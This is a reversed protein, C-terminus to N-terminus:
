PRKAPSVAESFRPAHMRLGEMGPLRRRLDADRILTRAVRVARDPARGAFRSAQPRSRRPFPGLQEHTYAELLGLRVFAGRAAALAPRRAASALDGPLFGYAQAAAPLLLDPRASPVPAPELDALPVAPAAAARAAIPGLLELARPVNALRHLSLGAFARRSSWPDDVPRDALPARM